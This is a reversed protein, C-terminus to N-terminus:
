VKHTIVVGLTGWHLTIAILTKVRIDMDNNGQGM